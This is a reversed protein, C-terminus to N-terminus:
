LMHKKSPRIKLQSYTSLAPYIEEEIIEQLFFINFKFRRWLVSIAAHMRILM